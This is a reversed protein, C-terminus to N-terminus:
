SCDGEEAVATFSYEPESLTKTLHEALVCGAMCFSPTLRLTVKTPPCETIRMNKEVYLRGLCVYACM